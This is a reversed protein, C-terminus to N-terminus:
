AAEKRVPLACSIFRNLAMISATMKDTPNGDGDVGSGDEWTTNKLTEKLDDIHSLSKQIGQAHAM